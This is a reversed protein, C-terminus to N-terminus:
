QVYLTDTVIGSKPIFVPTLISRLTLSNASNIYEARLYVSDNSPLQFIYADGSINTVFKSYAGAGTINTDLGALLRSTFVEITDFPVRGKFTDLVIIHLLNQTSYNISAFVTDLKTFESTTLALTGSFALPVTTNGSAVPLIPATYIVYSGVSHGATDFYYRGSADTVTDHFFSLAGSDMIYVTQGVIPMPYIKASDTYSYYYAVGNIVYQSTSTLQPQQATFQYKTCSYIGLILFCLFLVPYRM